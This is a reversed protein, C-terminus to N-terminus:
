GSSEGNYGGSSEHRLDSHPIANKATSCSSSSTDFRMSVGAPKRRIIVNNATILHANRVYAVLSHSILMATSEPITSTDVLSLVQQYLDFFAPVSFAQSIDPLVTVYINKLFLGTSAARFSM